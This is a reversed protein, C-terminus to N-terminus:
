RVEDETTSSFFDQHIPFSDPVDVLENRRILAWKSISKEAM